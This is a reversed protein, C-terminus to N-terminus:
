AIATVEQVNGFMETDLEVGFAMTVRHGVGGFLWPNQSLEYQAAFDEASLWKSHRFDQSILIKGLLIDDPDELDPLVPYRNGLIYEIMMNGANDQGAEPFTFAFFPDWEEDPDQDNVEPEDPNVPPIPL